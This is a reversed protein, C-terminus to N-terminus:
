SPVPTLTSSSTPSRPAPRLSDEPAQAPVVVLQRSVGVDRPHNGVRAPPTASSLVGLRRGQSTIVHFRSQDPDSSTISNPM